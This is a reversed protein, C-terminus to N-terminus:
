FQFKHATQSHKNLVNAAMRCVQINGGDVTRPYAMGSLIEGELFYSIDYSRGPAM